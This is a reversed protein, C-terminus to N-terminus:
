SSSYSLLLCIICLSASVTCCGILGYSPLLTLSSFVASIAGGMLDAGYIIGASAELGATRYRGVALPFISGSIFAFIFMFLPIIFASLMYGLGPAATLFVTFIMVTITLISLLGEINWGKARTSTTYSGLSLGSMFVATLLGIMSYVSGYFAQFSYLSVLQLTMACFGLIGIMIPVAANKFPTIGSSAVKIAVGAIFIFALLNIFAIDMMRKIALMFINPSYSLWTLISYIYSTPRFDTNVKTSRDFKVAEQVSRMKDASLTHRIVSADFYRTRAKNSAWRNALLRPDASLIGKSNSAFYYNSTGPVVVVDIFAKKITKHISANLARLESRMFSESCSVKMCLVGTKDLRSRCLKMFERTFYRNLAATSPDGVNIIILDYVNKTRNLFLRGDSSSVPYKQRSLAAIKPDFEVYDLVQPGHKKIEALVGGLGGGILLIKKPADAEIFPLHATEENEAISATSFLLTGNNFYSLSGKDQVVAIRGTVSDAWDIMNLPSYYLRLTKNDMKQGLSFILTFCAAIIVSFLILNRVKASSKNRIHNKYMYLVALCLAAGTIGTIQFPGIFHILIFSFLLGGICSGLSEAFYMRGANELIKSGATFIMGFIIGIPMISVLSILIISNLDAMAGAPIGFYPKALRAFVVEFPFIPVALLMLGALLKVPDKIKPLMLGTFISGIAGSILWTMLIIGWTLENGNFSATLERLIVVQAIVSAFGASLLAITM